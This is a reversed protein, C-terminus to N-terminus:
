KKEKRTFDCDQRTAPLPRTQIQVRQQLELWARCRIREGFTDEEQSVDERTDDKVEQGCRHM